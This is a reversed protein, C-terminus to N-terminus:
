KKGLAVVIGYITTAVLLLVALAAVLIMESSEGSETEAV